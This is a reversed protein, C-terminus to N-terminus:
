RQAHVAAADRGQFANVALLLGAALLLMLV